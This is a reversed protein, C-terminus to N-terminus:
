SALEEITSGPVRHDPTSGNSMTARAIEILAEAERLAQAGGDAVAYLLEALVRDTWGENMGTIRKIDCRRGTASM